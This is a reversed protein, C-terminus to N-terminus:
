MRGIVGYGIGHGGVAGVGTRYGWELGAEPLTCVRELTQVEHM